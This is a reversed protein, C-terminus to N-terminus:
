GKKFTDISGALGWSEGQGRGHGTVGKQGLFGLFKFGLERVRYVINSLYNQRIEFWEMKLASAGGCRMHQSPPRPESPEEEEKRIKRGVENKWEGRGAGPRGTHRGHGEWAWKGGLFRSTM